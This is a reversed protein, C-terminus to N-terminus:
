PSIWGEDTELAAPPPGDLRARDGELRIRGEAVLGLCRPYLRHELGLVRQRLREADDDPLIPTVAQGIIPGADVAPVVYHVTCGAFRVGAELARRHTDLGKFAPLLSPHINIMRGSWASVFGDTLVRMFGALCILEIDAARLADDIAAEFSARDPFDRHPITLAPLGARAARELGGAEAMNSIVLGIGAPFTPEACADILAQLNTGSGSILVAIRRKGTGAM